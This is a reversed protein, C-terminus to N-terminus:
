ESSWGTMDLRKRARCECQDYSRPPVSCMWALSDGTQSVSSASSAMCSQSRSNVGAIVRAEIPHQAVFDTKGAVPRLLDLADFRAAPRELAGVTVVGVDVVGGDRQDDQRAQRPLEDVPLADASVISRASPQVSAIRLRAAAAPRREVFVVVPRDDRLNREAIEALREVRRRGVDRRVHELREAQEAEIAIVGGDLAPELEIRESCSVSPLQNPRQPTM